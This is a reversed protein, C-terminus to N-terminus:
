KLVKIRKCYLRGTVSPSFDIRKAVGFTRLRQYTFINLAQEQVFTDLARALEEHKVPDLESVMEELKKDYTPDNHLSFPSKSYFLISQMFFIHGMIDPFGTVALDIDASALAAASEADTPAKLVNLNVGVRKLNEKFIGVTRSGHVKAITKLELPLKVGAEKLLSKAKEPNYLYPKLNPNHGVEGEMSLGAIVEGNGLLDYRILDEKNIAYNIARRVRVDDLPKRSTNFNGAVSYFTKKKIVKSYGGSAVALTYTGPLETVLDVKGNLLLEIQKESSIFDFELFPPVGSLDQWYQSNKTMLIHSNKVLNEFEFPGTGIPHSSFSSEMSAKPPLMFIFSALRRLLLSDPYHTVIDVTHSDIVVVESIAAVYGFGPFKTVPDLHRELSYKVANSDFPEGNHFFVNERLKFRMTLPDVRDWSLALAPQLKGNPDFEVLGEFIQQLLSYSKDDFVKLPDLSPPEKVDDCIKVSDIKPNEASFAIGAGCVTLVLVGVVRNLKLM